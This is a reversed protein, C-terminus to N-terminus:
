FLYGISLFNVDEEIITYEIEFKGGSATNFGVGIGFSSGTDSDSRSGIEVDENLLGLKAKFYSDGPTRFTAYAAVTQISVDYNGALEGEVISTTFEGEFGFGADNIYAGVLGINLPDDIGGLDIMMPGAKLGAYGNKDSQANATFSASFLFGIVLVCKIRNM